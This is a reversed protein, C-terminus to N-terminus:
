SVSWENNEEIHLPENYKLDEMLASLQSHQCSLAHLHSRSQTILLRVPPRFPRTQNQLPYGHARHM